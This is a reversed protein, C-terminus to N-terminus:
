ITLRQLEQGPPAQGFKGRSTRKDTLNKLFGLNLASMRRSPDNQDSMTADPSSQSYDAHSQDFHEPSISSSPLGTPHQDGMM